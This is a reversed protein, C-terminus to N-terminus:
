DADREILLDKDFSSLHGRMLLLEWQHRRGKSGIHEPQAPPRQFSSPAILESHRCPFHVTFHGGNVSDDVGHVQSLLLATTHHVLILHSFYGNPGFRRNREVKRGRELRRAPEDEHIFVVNGAATNYCFQNMVILLKEAFLSPLTIKSPHLALDADFIARLLIAVSGRNHKDCPPPMSPLGEKGPGDFGPKHCVTPMRIQEISLIESAPEISVERFSFSPLRSLHSTAITLHCPQKDIRSQDDDRRGIWEAHGKDLRCLSDPREDVWNRDDGNM